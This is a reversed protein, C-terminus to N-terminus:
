AQPRQQIAAAGAAEATGGGGSASAAAAQHAGAAAGAVQEPPQGAAAFPNVGAKVWRWFHAPAGPPSGPPSAGAAAAAASSESQPAASARSGGAALSAVGDFAAPRSVPEVAPLAASAAGNGAAAAGDGRSQVPSLGRAATAAPPPPVGAAVPAANVSSSVAAQPVSPARPLCAPYQITVLEEHIDKASPREAPDAAMCRAILSDM